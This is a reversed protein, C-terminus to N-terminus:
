YKWIEQTLERTQICMMKLKPQRTHFLCKIGWCNECVWAKSGERCHPLVAAGYDQRKIMLCSLVRWFALSLVVVKSPHCIGSCRQQEPSKSSSSLSFFLSFWSIKQGLTGLSSSSSPVSLLLFFLYLWLHFLREVWLYINGNGDFGAREWWQILAPLLSECFWLWLLAQACRHEWSFCSKLGPDQTAAWSMEWSAKFHYCAGFFWKHKHLAVRHSPPWLVRQLLVATTGLPSGSNRQVLCVRPAARVGSLTECQGAVASKMNSDALSM